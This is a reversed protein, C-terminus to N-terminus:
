YCLRPTEAVLPIRCDPPKNVPNCHYGYISFNGLHKQVKKYYSHGAALPDFSLEHFVTAEGFGRTMLEKFIFDEDGIDGSYACVEKGEQFLYAHSPMWSVHRGSSDISQVGSLEDLPLFTAYKDIPRLSFSLFDHLLELFALDPYYICLPRSNKEVYIRHALLSSLSGVHDDHLHTIVVADPLGALGLECLRSYIRNGCDILIHRGKWVLIASSNYYRYDFAGGSGLFRIKM